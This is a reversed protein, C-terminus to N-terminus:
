QTRYNKITSYFLEQIIGTHLLTIPCSCLVAYQATYYWLLCSFTHEWSVTFCYCLILLAWVQFYCLVAVLTVDAGSMPWVLSAVRRWNDIVACDINVLEVSTDSGVCHQWIICKAEKKHTRGLLPVSGNHKQTTWGDRRTDTRSGFKRMLAIDWSHM